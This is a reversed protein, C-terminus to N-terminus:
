EFWIKRRKSKEKNERLTKIIYKFLSKKIKEKEVAM